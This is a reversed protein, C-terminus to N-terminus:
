PREGSKRPEQEGPKWEGSTQEGAKWEGFTYADLMALVNLMGAVCALVVGADAYPIDHTLRPHGHFFEAVVAPVGLLFQGAWYYFHRERDLNAGEALVSGLIMLGVLLVFIVLGRARRGQLVQGLGPVLWTALAALPSDIGRSRETVQASGSRASGSRASGRRALTHASSMVFFNLVGSAATLTTGLDMGPPWPRPQGPGYGFSRIHYLLAGLNGAEPTLAGAFRGRMEHPLYELFMGGSLWVGIAYLGEVVLFAGLAFGVRGLYLHGAGPLFWTLLLAVNPDGTSRQEPKRSPVPM